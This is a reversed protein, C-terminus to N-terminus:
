FCWGGDSSFAAHWVRLGLLGVVLGWTVLRHPRLKMRSMAWTGPVTGLFFLTMFAMGEVASRSVSAASLLGGYLVGCPLVWSLFGRLLGGLRSSVRRFVKVHVKLHVKVFHWAMWGLGLFLVGLLLTERGSKSGMRALLEPGLAGALGGLVLYGLWRGGQYRLRDERTKCSGSIAGCMLACHPTAALGLLFFAGTIGVYQSISLFNVFPDSWSSM